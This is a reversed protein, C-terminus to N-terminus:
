MVLQERRQAPRQPLKEREALFGRSVGPEGRLLMLRQERQFTKRSSIVGRNALERITQLELVVTHHPEDVAERPLPQQSPGLRVNVSPPHFDPQGSAALSHDLAERRHVQLFDTLKSRFQM